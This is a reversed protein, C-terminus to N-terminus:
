SFYENRYENALKRVAYAGWKGYSKESNMNEKDIEGTLYAGSSVNILIIHVIL